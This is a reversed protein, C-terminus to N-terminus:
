TGEKIPKIEKDFEKTKLEILDNLTLHQGFENETLVDLKQM